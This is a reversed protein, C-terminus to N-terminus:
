MGNKGFNYWLSEKNEKCFYFYNLSDRSNMHSSLAVRRCELLALKTDPISEQPRPTEPPGKFHSTGTARAFNTM